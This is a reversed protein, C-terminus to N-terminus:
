KDSSAVIREIADDLASSSSDLLAISLCNKWWNYELQKELVKRNNQIKGTSSIELMTMKIFRKSQLIHIHLNDHRCGVFVVIVIVTQSQKVHVPSFIRCTPGSSSNVGPVFLSSLKKHSKLHPWIV